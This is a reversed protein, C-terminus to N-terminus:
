KKPIPAFDVDREIFVKKAVNIANIVRPFGAYPLAQTLVSVIKQPSVGVNIAVNVHNDLEAECGGMAMLTTITTLCKEEDSLGERAYITGFVFELIAESVDPAIDTLAASLHKPTGSTFHNFVAKADNNKSDNNM